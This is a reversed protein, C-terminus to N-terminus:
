PAFIPTYCDGTAAAIVTLFGGSQDVFPTLYTNAKLFTSQTATIGGDPLAAAYFNVDVNCGFSTCAGATIPIYAITNATVATGADQNTPFGYCAVGLSAPGGDPVPPVVILNGNKDTNFTHTANNTDSGGVLQPPLAPVVFTNSQAMSIAAISSAAVFFILRRM